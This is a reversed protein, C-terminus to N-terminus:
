SYGMNTAHGNGSAYRDELANCHVLYQKLTRECFSSYLGDLLQGQPVDSHMGTNLVM